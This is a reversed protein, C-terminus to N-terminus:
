AGGAGKAECAAAIEKAGVERSAQAAARWAAARERGEAGRRVVRARAEVAREFASMAREAEGAAARMAGLRLAFTAFRADGGPYFGRALAADLADLDGARAAVQAAVEAPPAPDVGAGAQIAAWAVVDSAVREFTALEDSPAELVGGGAREGRVDLDLVVVLDRREGVVVLDDPWDLAKDLVLWRTADWLEGRGLLVAGGDFVLGDCAAHLAAVDAPEPHPVSWAGDRPAKREVIRTSALVQQVREALTM